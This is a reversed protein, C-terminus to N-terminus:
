TSSAPPPCPVARGRPRGSHGSRQGTGWGRRRIRSSSRVRDDGTRRRAPGPLRRPHERDPGRDLQQREQDGERVLHGKGDRYVNSTSNTNNNVEKNGTDTGIDYFWNASSPASGATGAFNDGFM